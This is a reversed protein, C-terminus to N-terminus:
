AYRMGPLIADPLITRQPTKGETVLLGRRLAEDTIEDSTLPERAARLVELAAALFTRPEMAGAVTGQEGSMAQEERM